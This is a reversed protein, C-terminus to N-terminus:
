IFRNSAIGDWGRGKQCCGPFKIPLLPYQSNIANPACYEWKLAALSESHSIEFNGSNKNSQPVKPLSIGM